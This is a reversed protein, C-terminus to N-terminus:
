SLYNLHICKLLLFTDMGQSDLLGLDLLMADFNDKLLNKLALDLRNTHVLNFKTGVVEKLMEDIILVDGPNDEVLLINM